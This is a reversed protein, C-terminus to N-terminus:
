RCGDTTLKQYSWNDVYLGRRVVLVHCYCLTPGILIFLTHVPNLQDLTHDVPSTKQVRSSRESEVYLLSYISSLTIVEWSPSHSVYDYYSLLSFSGVCFEFM